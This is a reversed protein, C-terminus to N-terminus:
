SGPVQAKKGDHGRGFVDGRFFKDIEAYRLGILDRRKEGLYTRSEVGFGGVDITIGGPLKKAISPQSAFGADEGL